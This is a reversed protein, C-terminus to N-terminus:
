VGDLLPVPEIKLHVLRQVPLYQLRFGSGQDELGLLVLPLPLIRGLALERARGM